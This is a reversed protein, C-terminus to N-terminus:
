QRALSGNSDTPIRSAALFQTYSPEEEKTACRAMYALPRLGAQVEFGCAHVFTRICGKRSRLQSDRNFDASGSEFHTVNRMGCKANRM